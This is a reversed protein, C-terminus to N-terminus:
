ELGTRRAIAHPLLPARELRAALTEITFGPSACYDILDQEAALMSAVTEPIAAAIDLPINHVGHRDGHLVDGPKIALGGIEVPEGFEVIHAYAHSVSTQRAFLHFGTAEVAPLDRVAGNTVCGVCGLARAIHVHIAGVFAGLGPEHDIDKLVLVRPEPITLVYRWWDIRNYYCRGAMPPMSSRIVAPVAYGLMPPLNPFLCGVDHLFGENRLRVDFQEIANSVSCTDLAQLKKLQEGTLAPFVNPM